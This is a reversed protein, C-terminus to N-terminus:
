EVALITNVKMNPIILAWTLSMDVAQWEQRPVNKQLGLERKM